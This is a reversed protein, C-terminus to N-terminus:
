PDFLRVRGPIRRARRRHGMIAPRLGGLAGEAVARRGGDRGPWVPPPAPALPCCCRSASLPWCCTHAVCCQVCCRCQCLRCVGSVSVLMMVVVAVAHPTCSVAQSDRARVQEVFDVEWHEKERQRQTPTVPAAREHALPPLLEALARGVLCALQDPVSIRQALSVDQCMDIVHAAKGTEPNTYMCPCNRRDDPDALGPCLKPEFSAPLARTSWIMTRKRYAYGYQCYDLECSHPYPAIVARERLLGTAPNEILVVAADLDAAIRAVVAVCADAAPLNRPGSTKLNSYETCPPSAWIVARKRNAASVGALRKVEAATTANWKTLDISIDAGAEPDMDLRIAKVGLVRSLIRSVSGNGSYLEVVYFSERM